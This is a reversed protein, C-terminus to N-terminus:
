TDRRLVIPRSSEVGVGPLCALVATVASSRKVNLGDTALLEKNTLRGQTQLHRWAAHFMWLPVLQPGTGKAVSHETEIWMGDSTVDVITNPKGSSLTNVVSGAPIHARLLAVLDEESDTM